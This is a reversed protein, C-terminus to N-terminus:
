YRSFLGLNGKDDFSLVDYNKPEISYMGPSQQPMGPASIGTIKPRESLLRRIDNVPVHGEVIYGDVLATHCSNLRPDVGYKSKVASLDDLDHATVKFGNDELYTVWAKCCGCTPTKYVIIEPSEQAYLTPAFLAGSLVFLAVILQQLSKM